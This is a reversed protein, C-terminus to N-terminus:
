LLWEFYASVRSERADWASVPRYFGTTDDIAGSALMHSLGVAIKPTLRYGAKEFTAYDNKWNVAYRQDVILDFELELWDSAYAVVFKESLGYRPLDRGSASQTYESMQVFPGVRFYIGWKKGLDPTLEIALLNRVSYGDLNWRDLDLASASLALAPGLKEWFPLAQRLTLIGKPVSFNKYPDTPRNVFAYLEIQRGGAFSLLVDPEWSLSTARDEPALVCGMSTILQAQFLREPTNPTSEAVLWHPFLLACFLLVKPFPGRALSGYGWM